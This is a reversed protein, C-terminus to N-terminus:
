ANGDGTEPRVRSAMGVALACLSALAMARVPYDVVSHLALIAIATGAFTVQARQTTGLGRDGLSLAIRRFFTLLLAGLLVLALIGGEIAFEIYENHARVPHTDDVADLNEAARFVPIFNGVGVGVPWYNRAAVMADPWLDWRGEKQQVYRHWTHQLATNNRAV